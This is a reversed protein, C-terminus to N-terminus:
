RSKTGRAITELAEIARRILDDNTKQRQDIYTSMLAAADEEIATCLPTLFLTMGDGVPIGIVADDIGQGSWGGRLIRVIEAVDESVTAQHSATKGVKVDRRLVMRFQHNRSESM